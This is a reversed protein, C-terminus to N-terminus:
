AVVLGVVLFHDDVVIRRRSPPEAEDPEGPDASSTRSSSSSRRHGPRQAHSERRQSRSARASSAERVRTRPEHATIGVVRGTARRVRIAPYPPPHERNVRELRPAMDKAPPEIEWMLQLELRQVDEISAATKVAVEFRALADGSLGAAELRERSQAIAEPVSV